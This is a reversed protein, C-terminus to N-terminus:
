IRVTMWVNLSLSNVSSNGRRLVTGLVSIKPGPQGCNRKARRILCGSTSSERWSSSM